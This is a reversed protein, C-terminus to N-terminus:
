VIHRSGKKFALLKGQLAKTGLQQCLCCRLQRGPHMYRYYSIPILCDNDDEEENIQVIM